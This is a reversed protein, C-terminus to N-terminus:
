KKRSKRGFRYKSLNTRMGLYYRLYNLIGFDRPVDYEGNKWAVLWLCCTGGDPDRFSKRHESCKPCVHKLHWL